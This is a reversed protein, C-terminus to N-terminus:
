NGDKSLISHLTFFPTKVDRKQFGCAKKRSKSNQSLIISAILEWEQLDDPTHQM